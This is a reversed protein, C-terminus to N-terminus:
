NKGGNAEYIFLDGTEKPFNDSHLSYTYRRTTELNRKPYKEKILYHLAAQRDKALGIAFNKNDSHTVYVHTEQVEATDVNLIQIVVHINDKPETNVLHDLDMPKSISHKTEIEKPQLTKGDAYLHALPDGTPNPYVIQQEKPLHKNTTELVGKALHMFKHQLPDGTISIPEGMGPALGKVIEKDHSDAKALAELRKQDWEFSPASIVAKENYRIHEELMVISQDLSERQEKLRALLEKYM